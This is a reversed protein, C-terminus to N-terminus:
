QRRSHRFANEIILKSQRERQLTQKWREFFYQQAM